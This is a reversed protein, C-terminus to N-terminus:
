KQREEKWKSLEKPDVWTTGKFKLTTFLGLSLYNRMVSEKIGLTGAAESVSFCTTPTAIQIQKVKPPM